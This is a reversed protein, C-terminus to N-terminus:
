GAGSTLGSRFFLSRQAVDAGRRPRGGWEGTGRGVRARRRRWVGDRGGEGTVCATSRGGGRGLYATLLPITVPWAWALRLCLQGSGPRAVMRPRGSALIPREGARHQTMRFFPSFRMNCSYIELTKSIKSTYQLNQIDINCFYISINCMNYHSYM